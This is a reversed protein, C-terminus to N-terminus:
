KWRDPLVRALETESTIGQRLFKQAHESMSQFGNKDLSERVKEVPQMRFLEQIQPTFELLEFVGKRGVTKKTKPDITRILRQAIVLRITDLLLYEEVGMDKLRAMSSVADNTHLTALVLHGTMAARVAISATESDRIEGVLIIDPDHRLFGRLGAAFSLGIEPHVEVQTIGAMEYEIPDEITLVKKSSLDMMGLMAYLTTTKGSGTPGTVLVLGHSRQLQRKIISIQDQDFGLESIEPKQNSTKLFRLVCNEGHRGPIISVRIDVPKGDHDFRFSGDQPLRKETIDLNSNIKIASIIEQSQADNAFLTEELMGNIRYRLQLGARTSELHLDSAGMSLGDAVMKELRKPMKGQPSDGQAKEKKQGSVIRLIQTELGLVPIVEEGLLFAIKKVLSGDAPDPMAVLFGKKTSRIPLVTNKLCFDKPIKSNLSTDPIDRDADFWQKLGKQEVLTELLVSEELSRLELLAHGLRFGHKKQYLLGAELEDQTIVGKRLLLSGLRGSSDKM